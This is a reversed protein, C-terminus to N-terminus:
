WPLRTAKVGRHNPPRGRRQGCSLEATAARARAVAQLGTPQPPPNPPPHLRLRAQVRGGWSQAREGPHGPTVQPGPSAESLLSRQWGCPQTQEPAEPSTPCTCPHPKLAPDPLDAQLQQHPGPLEPM